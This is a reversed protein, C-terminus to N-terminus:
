KQKVNMNKKTSSPIRSENKNSKNRAMGPRFTRLAALSRKQLHKCVQEKSSREKVTAECQLRPKSSGCIKQLDFVWEAPGSYFLKAQRPTLLNAMLIRFERDQKALGSAITELGFGLGAFRYFGLDGNKPTDMAWEQMSIGRGEILWRLNAISKINLHTCSWSIPDSKIETDGLYNTLDSDSKFTTLNVKTKSMDDIWVKPIFSQINDCGLLAGQIAFKFHAFGESERILDVVRQINVRALGHYIENNAEVIRALAENESDKLPVLQQYRSNTKFLKKYAGLQNVKRPISDDATLKTRNYSTPFFCEADWIPRPRYTHISHCQMCQSPNPSSIEVRQGTSVSDFNVDIYQFRDDPSKENIKLLEINEFNTDEPNGNFSLLYDIKASANKKYVIVRPFPLSSTQASVSNGILSYNSIMDEPLRCLVDQVSTINPDTKISKLLGAFTLDSGWRECSDATSSSIVLLLKVIVIFPIAM